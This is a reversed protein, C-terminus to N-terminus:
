SSFGNTSLSFGDMDVDIYLRMEKEMEGILKGAQIVNVGCTNASDVYSQNLIGVDSLEEIWTHISSHQGSDPIAGHKMLDDGRDARIMIMVASGGDAKPAGAKDPCENAM